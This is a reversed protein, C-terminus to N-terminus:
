ESVEVAVMPDNVAFLWKAPRLLDEFIEAAVRMSHGNGVMAQDRELVFFNCEGPSVPRM